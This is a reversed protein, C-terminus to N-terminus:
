FFGAWPSAPSFTAENRQLHCARASAHRPRAFGSSPETKQALTSVPCEEPCNEGDRLFGTDQYCVVAPKHPIFAVRETRSSSKLGRIDSCAARVPGQYGGGPVPAKENWGPREQFPDAKATSRCAGAIERLETRCLAMRGLIKRFVIKEAM